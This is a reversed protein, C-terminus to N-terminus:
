STTQVDYRDLEPAPPERENFQLQEALRSWGGFYGDAPALVGWWRLRVRDARSSRYRCAGRTVQLLQTIGRDWGQGAVQEARALIM